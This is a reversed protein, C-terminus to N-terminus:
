ITILSARSIIKWKALGNVFLNSYMNKSSQTNSTSYKVTPHEIMATVLSHYCFGSIFDFQFPSFKLEAIAFFINVFAGYM